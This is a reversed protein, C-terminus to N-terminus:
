HLCERLLSSITALAGTELPDVPCINTESRLWTLQRKALQRTAALARSRAEDYDCEQKLFAWFQRYGVARMSGHEATLDPRKVLTKMEDIFGADLMMDLRNEIRAHLAPRSDPMLAIKSFSYAGRVPAARSQWETLTRGSIRYVELARQIRQADNPNIRVAAAVDIEALQAHLAPWGIRAGEKDIAKRVSLDAEPLDAIGNILARFYMMTGGVLLPVRGNALISEIERGADRVFEGASYSDEPERIDILRHPYRRLTNADPKATGVNMGRYVLASDVSVLELPFEDALRMAVDSKGSATPGMLCIVLKVM